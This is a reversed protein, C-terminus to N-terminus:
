TRGQGVELVVFEDADLFGLWRFSARHRALCDDYVFLQSLGSHHTFNTQM